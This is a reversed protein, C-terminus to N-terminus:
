FTLTHNRQVLSTDRNCAVIRVMPSLLTVKVRGRDLRPLEVQTMRVSRLAPSFASSHLEFQLSAFGFVEVRAQVVCSGLRPRM